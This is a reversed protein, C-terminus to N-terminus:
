YHHNNIDRFLWIAVEIMANVLSIVARGNTASLVQREAHARSYSDVRFERLDATWVIFRRM